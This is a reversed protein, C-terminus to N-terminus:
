FGRVIARAWFGHKSGIMQIDLRDAVIDATKRHGILLTPWSFNQDKIIAIRISYHKPKRESAFNELRTPTTFIAISSTAIQERGLVGATGRQVPAQHAREADGLCLDIFLGRSKYVGEKRFQPLFLMM